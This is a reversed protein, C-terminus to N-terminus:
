KRCKTGSGCSRLVELELLQLCPLKLSSYAITDPLCGNQQMGSLLKNATAMAENRTHTHILATYAFHNVAVGNREMGTYLAM